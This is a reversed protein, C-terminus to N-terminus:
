KKRPINLLPYALVLKHNISVLATAIEIWSRWKVVFDHVEVFGVTSIASSTRAPVTTARNRQVGRVPMSEPAPLRPIRSITARREVASSTRAVDRASWRARCCCMVNHAILDLGIGAIAKAGGSPERRRRSLEVGVTTGKRPTAHAPPLIRPIYMEPEVVDM